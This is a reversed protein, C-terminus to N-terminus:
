RKGVREMQGWGGGDGCVEELVVIVGVVVVMGVGDGSHGIPSRLSVWLVDCPDRSAM